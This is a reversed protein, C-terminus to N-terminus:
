CPNGGKKLIITFIKKDEKQEISLSGDYFSVTEKVLSLGEGRGTGKTSYGKIFIDVTSDIPSGQDTVEIEIQYDDEYIALQINKVSSDLSAEIANELLNGIIIVLDHTTIKKHVEFLSSDDTLTLQIGKEKAINIKGMILGSLISDGISHKNIIATSDSQIDQIFKKAEDVENLTLLGLIVHLKNKFEHINARLSDIILNVGTIKEAEKTVMNSDKITIVIGIKEDKESIPILSIFTRRDGLFVTRNYIVEFNSLVEIISERLSNEYTDIRMDKAAQNKKTIKGQLNIIVIGEELAEFVAENEEYLKSIQKPEFGKLENKINRSLLLAGIYTIFFISVTIFFTNIINKNRLNTIKWYLKGVMVFGIQNGKYYIPEFRRLARGLTGHAKSFYSNSNRLVDKEDGGVFYKGILEPNVHSYRKGTTDSIIIMDIDNLEEVIINVKNQVKQSNELYLNEQIFPDSAILFSINSLTNKTTRETNKWTLMGFAILILTFGITTITSLYIRIKKELNM